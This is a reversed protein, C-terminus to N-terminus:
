KALDSLWSARVEGEREGDENGRRANMRMAEKGTHAKCARCM